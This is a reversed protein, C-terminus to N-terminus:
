STIAANYETILDTMAKKSTWGNEIFEANLEASFIYASIETALEEHQKTRLDARNLAFKVSETIRGSFLTLIGILFAVVWTATQTKFSTVLGQLWTPKTAP